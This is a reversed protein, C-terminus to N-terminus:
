SSRRSPRWRAPNMRIYTRVAKLACADRIISEDYNRQWVVRMTTHARVWQTVGIKFGRDM